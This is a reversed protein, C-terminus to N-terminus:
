SEFPHTPESELVDRLLDPRDTMIGGVGDSVLRRMVDAEDITWVNVWKNAREAAELLQADILRIGEYELPMDLVSFRPDSPPPEGSRVAIVFAALAEAPYFHCGEPFAAFLRASMEERESGCCVRQAARENRITRAFAAEIGPTSAKVDVNLRVRPFARLVEVLTPVQAGKGRCPFTAGRDQSFHHGADLRRVQSLTLRAIEGTGDTCRDVTPDHAVVLEGDATMHVDLELMDTQFREVAQRFALMTNEPALAAGGRHSIHLTPTLRDFFPHAPMM